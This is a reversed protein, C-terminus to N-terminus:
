QNKSADKIAQAIQHLQDEIDDLRKNDKHDRQWFFGKSKEDSASQKRALKPHSMQFSMNAVSNESLHTFITNVHQQKQEATLATWYLMLNIDRKLAFYRNLEEKYERNARRAYAIFPTTVLLLTLSYKSLLFITPWINEEAQQKAPDPLACLDKFFCFIELLSYDFYFLFLTFLVIGIVWFRLRSAAKEAKDDLGVKLPLHFKDDERSTKSTDSGGGHGGGYRNGSGSGIGGGFGGSGNGKTSSKQSLGGEPFGYLKIHSRNIDDDFQKAIEQPNTIRELQALTNTEILRGITSGRNHYFDVNKSDLEIARDYDKIAEEHQGLGRKANGRNNYAATDNPDLEIAKDYDKIAETYQGLKSKAIGRNYYAAADNPDSEIVKDYDKIAEEHLELEDKANGRNYYALDHKPDLEIARDFDKIAEIYQDLENKANGRNNYIVAVESNLEIAKDYDKIAEDYQKLGGKANGRFFYGEARDPYDEIFQTAAQELAEWDKAEALENLADIRKEIEKDDDKAM